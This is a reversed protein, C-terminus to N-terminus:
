GRPLGRGARLRRALSRAATLYFHRQPQGALAVPTPRLASEMGALPQPAVRGSAYPHRWRSPVVVTLGWGRAQLERYVEQNVSVVAPHSVVLARPARHTAIQPEPEAGTSPAASRAPAQSEPTRAASSLLRNRM